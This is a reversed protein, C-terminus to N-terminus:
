VKWKLNKSYKTCLYLTTSRQSPHSNKLKPGVNLSSLASKIKCNVRQRKTTNSVTAHPRIVTNVTEVGKCMLFTAENFVEVRYYFLQYRLYVNNKITFHTYQQVTM